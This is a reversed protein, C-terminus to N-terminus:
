GDNEIEEKKVHRIEISINDKQLSLYQADIEYLLEGSINKFVEVNELLLEAEISNDSFAKLWGDYMINNKIDRVTIWETDPSNMLLGWVDQEGFKTTIKLYQLIRFHLKYTNITIIVLAILISLLLVFLIEKLSVIAGEVGNLASLFAISEFRNPFCLYIIISYIIYSGFGLIFANILFQFQSREKHNTFMDVIYACIIGPFFILLINFAFQSIDM